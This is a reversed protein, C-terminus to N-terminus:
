EEKDDGTGNEAIVDDEQKDPVGLEEKLEIGGTSLSEERQLNILETEYDNIINTALMPLLIDRCDRISSFLEIKENHNKEKLSEAFDLTLAGFMKPGENTQRFLSIALMAKTSKDKWTQAVVRENKSEGSRIDTIYECNESEKEYDYLLIGDIQKDDRELVRQLLGVVGDSYARMNHKGKGPTKNCSFFTRRIKKNETWIVVVAEIDNELKLREKNIKCFYRLVNEICDSQNSSSQGLYTDVIHYEYHKDWLVDFLTQGKKGLENEASYNFFYRPSYEDANIKYGFKIIHDQLCYYPLSIYSYYKIQVCDSNQAWNDLKRIIAERDDGFLSPQKTIIRIQLKKPIPKKENLIVLLDDVRDTILDLSKNPWTWTGSSLLLNGAETIEQLGIEDHIYRYDVQEKNELSPYIVFAVIGSAVLSCGIGVFISEATINSKPLFYCVGLIIFLVGIIIIIVNLLVTYKRMWKMARKMQYRQDSMEIGRLMRNLSRM